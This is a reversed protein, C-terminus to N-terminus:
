RKQLHILRFDSNDGLARTFRIHFYKKSATEIDKLSHLITEHRVTKYTSGTRVKERRLWAKLVSLFYKRFLKGKGAYLLNVVLTGNEALLSHLREFLTELDDVYNLVGFNALIGNLKVPVPPETKWLKFNTNSLFILRNNNPYSQVHSEAQRRMNASPECFFVQYGGALLWPLDLGTGGGFDMVKKGHVASCFYQAVEARVLEDSPNSLYRNYDGAISDYYQNTPVLQTKAM